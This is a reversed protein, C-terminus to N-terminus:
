FQIKLGSQYVRPTFTATSKGFAPDALNLKVTTPANGTPPNTLNVRNFANFADLRLLAKIRETVAFTKALSLLSGDACM